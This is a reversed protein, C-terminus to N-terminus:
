KGSLGGLGGCNRQRSRGSSGIAWVVPWQECIGYIPCNLWLHVWDGCSVRCAAWGPVSGRGTRELDRSVAEGLVSRTGARQGKWCAARGLVSDARARQAARCATRGAHQAARCATTASVPRATRGAVSDTRGHEQGPCVAWGPVSKTQARQGERCAAGGACQAAQSRARGRASKEGAIIQWSGAERRPGALAERGEGCCRLGAISVALAHRDRTSM